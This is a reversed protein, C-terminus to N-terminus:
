VINENRLYAILTQIHHEYHKWRGISSKYMPQRVQNYSATLVNRTNKNFELCKDNWPLDCAKLLKRIEKEPNAVLDEYIVDHIPLTLAQKWHAMMALYTKYYFGLDELDFSFSVGATFCQFYCSLCTDLPDRKCHIIKCNPFFLEIYALNMFNQPMKDVVRAAQSDLQDIIELYDTACRDLEAKGIDQNGLKGGPLSAVLRNIDGLEGAGYVDPHTSLIQEVLSTGSRPM